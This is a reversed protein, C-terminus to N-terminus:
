IAQKLLMRAYDNVSMGAAEAQIELELEYEPSLVIRKLLIDDDNV